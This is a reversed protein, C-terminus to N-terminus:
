VAELLGDLSDTYDPQPEEPEEPLMRDKYGVFLDEFVTDLIIEKDAIENWWYRIIDKLPIGLNGYPRDPDFEGETLLECMRM